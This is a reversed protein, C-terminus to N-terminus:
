SPGAAIFWVLGVLIACAYAGITLWAIHLGIAQRFTLKRDGYTM